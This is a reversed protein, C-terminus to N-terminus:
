EDADDYQCMDMKQCAHEFLDVVSGAAATVAAGVKVIAVLQNLPVSYYKAYQKAWLKRDPTFKWKRYSKTDIHFRGLRYYGLGMKVLKGNEHWYHKVLAEVKKENSQPMIDLGSFDLHASATAGGSKTNVDLSRYASEIVYEVGTLRQIECLLRLTPVMNDWLEVPPLVKYKPYRKRFTTSLVTLAEPSMGSPLMGRFFGAFKALNDDNYELYGGRGSKSGTPGTLDKDSM